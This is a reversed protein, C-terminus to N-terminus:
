GTDVQNCAVAGMRNHRHVLFVGTALTRIDSEDGSSGLSSRRISPWAILMSINVIEDEAAPPPSCHWAYRGPLACGRVALRKPAGTRVFCARAPLVRASKAAPASPVPRRAN